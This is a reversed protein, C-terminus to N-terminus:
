ALPLGHPEGQAPRDQTPSSLATRGSLTTGCGPSELLSATIICRTAADAIVSRPCGADLARLACEVKPIMGGSVIGEAILAVAERSSLSPIVRGDRKVGPVDTLFLCADARISGALAAAAYDANLNLAAGESDQGVPSVVPVIGSHELALIARPDSRVVEGTRGLDEGRKGRLRQATLLGSDRGTLGAAPAGLRTIRSALDSNISGSLVMETARMTEDDTVRLGDIFCSQIGLRELLRSIEKGGGHVVVVKAGLQALAAVESCVREKISEDEMAAGGYKVLFRRGALQAALPFTSTIECPTVPKM